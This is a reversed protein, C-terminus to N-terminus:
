DEEHKNPAKPIYLPVLTGKHLEANWVRAYGQGLRYIMNVYERGLTEKVWNGSAAELGLIIKTQFVGIIEPIIDHPQQSAFIMGFHKKRGRRAIRILNQSVRRLYDAEGPDKVKPFLEHAEDLVMVLPTQDNEHIKKKNIMLLLYLLIPMKDLIHDIQIVSVQGPVLIDDIQLPIGGQDFVEIPGNVIAGKIARAVQTNLTQGEHTIIENIKDSFTKYSVAPYENFVKKVMRKFNTSSTPPLEPFLLSVLEPDIANLSLTHTGDGHNFIIKFVKLNKVVDMNLMDWLEEDFVTAYKTHENLNGFQGTIDLVIVAPPLGDRTGVYQSLGNILIKILNTKGKGPSGVVFIGKYGTEKFSFPFKYILKMDPIEDELTEYTVLGLSIGEGFLNMVKMMENKSPLRYYHSSFNAPFLVRTFKENEYYMFPSTEIYINFMGIARFPAKLTKPFSTIEKLEVIASPMDTKKKSYSILVQGPFVSRQFEQRIAGSLVNSKELSLKYQQVESQLVIGIADNPISEDDWKDDTTPEPAVQIITQTPEPKTDKVKISQNEESEYEPIPQVTEQQFTEPEITQTKFDETQDDMISQGDDVSSDITSTEDDIDIESIQIVKEDNECMEYYDCEKCKSDMLIHPVQGNEQYGFIEQVREIVKERHIDSFAINFEKEGYYLIKLGICKMEFEDEYVVAYGAAEMVHSEFPAGDPVRGTKFEWVFFDGNEKEVVCDMRGYLKPHNIGVELEFKPEGKFYQQPLNNAPFTNDGDALHKAAATISSLFGNRGEMMRKFGKNLDKQYKLYAHDNKMIVRAEEAAAELIMKLRSFGVPRTRQNYMADTWEEHFNKFVDHLIRGIIRKKSDFKGKDKARLSLIGQKKCFSFNELINVPIKGSPFSNNINEDM